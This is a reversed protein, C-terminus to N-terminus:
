CAIFVQPGRSTEGCSPHLIFYMQYLHQLVFQQTFRCPYIVSHSVTLHSWSTCKVAANLLEWKYFQWTIDWLDFCSTHNKNRKRVLCLVTNSFCPFSYEEWLESSLAKLSESILSVTKRFQKPVNKSVTKVNELSHTCVDCSNAPVESSYQM